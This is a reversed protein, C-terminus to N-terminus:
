SKGRISKSKKKRDKYVKSKYQPETLLKKAIPNRKKM